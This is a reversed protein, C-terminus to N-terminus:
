LVEDADCVLVNGVIDGFAEIAESYKLIHGDQVRVGTDALLRTAIRNFPLGLLRGEENVVMFRGDALYIMEIYGGVANQLEQLSFANGENASRHEIQDSDHRIYLAM